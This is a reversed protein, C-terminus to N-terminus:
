NHKILHYSLYYQWVYVIKRHRPAICPTFHHHLFLIHSDRVRFVVVISSSILLNGCYYDLSYTIYITICSHACYHACISGFVGM